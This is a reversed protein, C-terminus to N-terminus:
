NVPFGYIHNIKSNQKLVPGLLPSCQANVIVFSISHLKHKVICNMKAKGSVNVQQGTFSSVTVDCKYILSSDFGLENFLSHSM